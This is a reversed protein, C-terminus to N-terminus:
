QVNAMPVLLPRRTSSKPYRSKIGSPTKNSEIKTIVHTKGTAGETIGFGPPIEAIPSSPGHVSRFRLATANSGMGERAPGVTALVRVGRITSAFIFRIGIKPGRTPPDQPYRRRTSSRAAIVPIAKATAHRAQRRRVGCSAVQIAVSGRTRALIWRGEYRGAIAGLPAVVLQLPLVPGARSAGLPEPSRLICNASRASESCLGLQGALVIPVVSGPAREQLVQDALAGNVALCLTGMRTSITAFGCAVAGMRGNNVDAALAVDREVLVDPVHAARRSRAPGSGDGALTPMIVYETIILMRTTPLRAV